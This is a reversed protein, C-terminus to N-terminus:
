NLFIKNLNYLYYKDKFQNKKKNITIFFIKDSNIINFFNINFIELFIYNPNNIKNIQLNNKKIICKIRFYKIKKNM